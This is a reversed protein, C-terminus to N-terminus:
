SCMAWVQFWVDVAPSVGCLGCMLEVSLRLKTVCSGDATQLIAWNQQRETNVRGRVGELWRRGSKETDAHLENRGAGEDEEKEAECGRLRTSSKM